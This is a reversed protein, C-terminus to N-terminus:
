NLIIWLRVYKYNMLINYLDPNIMPVKGFIFINGNTMLRDKRERDIRPQLSIKKFLKFRIQLFLKIFDEILHHVLFWICKMYNGKKM